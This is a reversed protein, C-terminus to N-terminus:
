FIYSLIDPTLYVQMLGVLGIVAILMPSISIFSMLAKSFAKKFTLTKQKM